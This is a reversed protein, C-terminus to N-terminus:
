LSCVLVGSHYPSGCLGVNVQLGYVCSSIQNLLTGDHYMVREVSDTEPDIVIMSGPTVVSDSYDGHLVKSLLPMGGAVIRRRKEDFELNDVADPLKITKLYKINNYFAMKQKVSMMTLQKPVSFVTLEKMVPDNVYVINRDAFAPDPNTRDITIGNAHVFNNYEEARTCDMKKTLDEPDFRCMHFNTLTFWRSAAFASLNTLIIQLFEVLTMKGHRTGKIPLGFPQWNTIYLENPASEVLDNIFAHKFHHNLMGLHKVKVQKGPSGQGETAEVRVQFVDIVSLINRLGTHNIVYLRKTQTSYYMGHAHFTLLRKKPYEELELQTVKTQQIDNGSLEVLFLGGGASKQGYRFLSLLDGAGYIYFNDEIHVIDESGIDEKNGTSFLSCNKEVLKLQELKDFKLTSNEDFYGFDLVTIMHLVLFSLLLPLFVLSLLGKFVKM